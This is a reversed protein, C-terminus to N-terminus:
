FGYEGWRGEVKKTVEEPTECPNPYGPKWTADIGMVGDYITTVGELRTSTFEIDRAADFRTFIGWIIEMDSSLNVDESVAAVIKTGKPLHGIHEPHVLKEIVERGSTKTPTPLDNEMSFAANTEARYAGRVKVVLLVDEILAYESIRSDLRMLYEPQTGVKEFFQSTKRPPYKGGSSVTDLKPTADILLKSGLNMTYSTFDLTDMPVKNLIIADYHPDYHTAIERLIARFNRNNVHEGVMVACKTLSLQGDTSLSLATKMAEKGYRQKTSVGLFNHFGSEYFAWVDRVEPHTLKALPGLVRQTADGLWKDEMPPKGVVTAAFIPNARHTITKVHFVPYMAAHSYHGFHDGFPGELRREHPPVIGEIIFEAEAPVLTSIHKGRTMRTAEGRLFGAFMVEDIGEPLPAITALLLAPDSGVAIAVELPKNIAEAVSYHFGGGKQIQWHIGTTVRDYLQIRYMGLNRKGTKPDSTFVQPLTIFKGADDKWTQLVPLTDLKAGLNIQQSPANGSSSVRASMIRRGLPRVANFIKSPSPPMAEEVLHILQEGLKDPNEGIAYEVRKDSSLINMALRYPSGIVNEFLLAKGSEKMAKIAITSAELYPDIPVTIRQLEGQKELFAYFDQLSRFIPRAMNNSNKPAGARASM